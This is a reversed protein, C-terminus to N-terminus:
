WVTVFGDNGPIYEPDIDPFMSQPGFCIKIDYSGIDSCKQYESGASSDIRVLHTGSVSILENLEEIVAVLTEEDDRTIPGDVGVVVQIRSNDPWRRIFLDDSGHESGLAVELFYAVLRQEQSCAGLVLFAGLALVHKATSLTSM